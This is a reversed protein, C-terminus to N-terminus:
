WFDAWIPSLLVIALIIAIVMWMVKSSEAKRLPENRADEERWRAVKEQDEREKRRREQREQEQYERLAKDHEERQEPTMSQLWTDIDFEENTM